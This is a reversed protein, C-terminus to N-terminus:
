AGPVIRWTGGAVSTPVTSVNRVRYADGRLEVDLVVIVGDDVGDPWLESPRMGSLFNGMGYAVVKGHLREIPQVVHAHHGVIADVFRSRTLRDAVRVQFATPSSLPEVGWHLSVITFRSGQARARRADDLIRGIQIRNAQWDHEPIFGNFGFSYALQAVEVGDVDLMTIRRSEARSRATGAHALGARDLADLTADIGGAGQDLSHNSATSCSDYGADAIADVIQHPAAFVPYSSLTGDTTVPTELHCIAVDAESLLGRVRHFMPRFDFARGVEVGLKAAREWLSEHILIDGTAAITFRRPDGDAEGPLDTSSAAVNPASASAHPLIRARRHSTVPVEGAQHPVAMSLAIVGALLTSRTVPGPPPRRRRHKGRM